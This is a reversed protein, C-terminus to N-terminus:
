RLTSPSTLSNYFTAVLSVRRIQSTSERFRDREFGEMTNAQVTILSNFVELMIHHFGMSRDLARLSLSRIKRNLFLILFAALPAFILSALTLRWSIYWAGILCSLIRMPETIAGSYFNTIGAALMDTTQTIHAAFGSVGYWNFVPRDLRLAQNFLKCRIERAISQSVYSVLMANALMLLQKIATAIAVLMVIFVVTSFPKSPLFRDFYPQLHEASRAAARDVHVQTQRTSLTLELERRAAADATQPIRAQLGAIEAEHEALDTKARELRKQNWTQLTQGHLTTEIIPFLAAINAGWLAAVGLSCCVALALTPWYRWAEKLARGFYKM